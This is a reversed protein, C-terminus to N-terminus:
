FGMVANSMPVGNLAESVDVRACDDAFCDVYKNSEGFYSLYLNNRSRTMGVMFVTRDIWLDTNLGPLFVNDFDLGKASHYTTICVKDDRLMGYGCGVFELRVGQCSLHHNMAGFDQKSWRNLTPSWPQKGELSLINNVYDVVADNSSALIASSDGVEPGKQAEKWVYKLEDSKNSARCLRIQTSHSASNRINSLERMEPMLKRVAKQISPSLRHIISLKYEEGDLLGTIDAPGVTSEHFKPDMDYLSQHPDGAVILHDCRSKMERIISPTLDQVEDCFIYDYRAGTKKFYYMTGVEVHHLGLERFAAEFMTVLSNTFTAVFIRKEPNDSLILRAAHMLLTSKGSGPFGSIWVNGGNLKENLFQRQEGDLNQPKVVWKGM